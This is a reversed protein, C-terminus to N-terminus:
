QSDWFLKMLMISSLGMFLIAICAKLGGGFWDAYSIDAMDEGFAYIQIVVISNNLIHLLSTLVISGTKYYIIGFIIGLPLAYIGQALNLHMIGFAISSILIAGWPTAGRRLMEGIIAERFLFEETIPGVITLALLGWFSHSMALSLQQLMDPIEVSDTLISISMAGFIGGAVAMMGPLWKVSSIDCATTFRINHLFAHCALIALINVAMLTLAFYSVPIQDFSLVAQGSGSVYALVAAKFDPSVLIGIVFLLVSGLGQALLFVLLTLIAPSFKHWSM